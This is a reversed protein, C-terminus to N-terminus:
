LLLRFPLIFEGILSFVHPAWVVVKRGCDNSDQCESIETYQCHVSHVFVSFLSHGMSPHLHGAALKQLLISDLHNAVPKAFTTPVLKWIWLHEGLAMQVQLLSIRRGNAVGDLRLKWCRCNAAGGPRPTSAHVAAAFRYFGLAQVLLRLFAFVCDHGAGCILRIPHRGNAVISRTTIM